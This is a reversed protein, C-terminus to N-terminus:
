VELLEPNEYITGIIKYQDATGWWEGFGTMFGEETWMQEGWKVVEKMKGGEHLLIDGEYMGKGDMDKLGTYQMLKVSGEGIDNDECDLRLWADFGDWDRMDPSYHMKEEEVAWARFKIERM